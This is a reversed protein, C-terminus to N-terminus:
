RNIWTLDKFSNYFINLYSLLCFLYFIEACVKEYMYYIILLLYNEFNNSEARFLSFCFNVQKM